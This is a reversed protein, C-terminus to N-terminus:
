LQALDLPSLCAYSWPKLSLGIDDNPRWPGSLMKRGFSMCQDKVNIVNNIPGVTFSTAIIRFKKTLSKFILPHFIFRVFFWPAKWRLSIELLGTTYSMTPYGELTSFLKNCTAKGVVSFFACNGTTHAARNVSRGWLKQNQTTDLVLSPEEAPGLQGARGISCYSSSSGITGSSASAPLSERWLRQPHIM